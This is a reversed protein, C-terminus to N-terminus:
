PLTHTHGPNSRPICLMLSYCFIHRGCFAANNHIASHWDLTRTLKCLQLAAGSHQWVPEIQAALRHCRRAVQLSTRYCTNRVQQLLPPEFTSEGTNAIYIFIHITSFNMHQWTLKIPNIFQFLRRERQLRVSVWSKESGTYLESSMIHHVNTLNSTFNQIM